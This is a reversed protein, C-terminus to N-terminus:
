NGLDTGPDSLGHAKTIRVLLGRLEKVQKQLAANDAELQTLQPLLDHCEEEGNRHTVGVVETYNNTLKMMIM